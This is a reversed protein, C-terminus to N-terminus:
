GIGIREKGELLVIGNWDRMRMYGVGGDSEEVELEVIMNVNSSEIDDMVQRRIEGSNVGSLWICDSESIGSELWLENIIGLIIIDFNMFSNKLKITM